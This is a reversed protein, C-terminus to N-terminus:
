LYTTNLILSQCAENAGQDGNLLCLEAAVRGPQRKMKMVIKSPVGSLDAPRLSASHHGWRLVSSGQQERYPTAQLPHQATMYKQALPCAARM